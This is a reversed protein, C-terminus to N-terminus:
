QGQGQGQSDYSKHLDQGDFYVEYTDTLVKIQDIFVYVDDANSTATRTYEGEDASLERIVIRVIKLLKTVPYSDTTQPVTEPIDFTMPRWGVFNISQKPLIHVDGKYDKVWLEITYPFGRAHVWMSIARARGPLEIAREQVEQKLTQNYTMVKKGPEEWATEKPPELSVSNNGPYRFKFKVGMVVEKKQGLRSTQDEPRLDNPGGKVPKCDLMLVPNKLKTLEDNTNQYEKPESTIYWADEDINKTAKTMTEFDEVVIAKLQEGSLDSPVNTVIKSNADRMVAFAAALCLAIIMFRSSIKKM